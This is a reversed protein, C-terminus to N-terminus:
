KDSTISKPSRGDLYSRILNVIKEQQKQNSSGGLSLRDGEDMLLCVEYLMGNERYITELKVESIESLSREAFEKVRM